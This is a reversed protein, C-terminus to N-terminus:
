PQRLSWHESTHTQGLMGVARSLTSSSALLGASVPITLYFVHAVHVFEVRCLVSCTEDPSKVSQLPAPTSIGSYRHFGIAELRASKSTSVERLPRCVVPEPRIPSFYPRAAASTQKDFPQFFPLGPPMLLPPHRPQRALPHFLLVSRPAPRERESQEEM